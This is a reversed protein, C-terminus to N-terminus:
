FRYEARLFFSRSAQPLRPAFPFDGSRVGPDFYSEDLLNNVLLQLTLGPTLNDLTLAGNVVVHSRVEDFVEGAVTSRLGTARDSVYNTRLNLNLRRISQPDIGAAAEPEWLKANLVANLRSDAIDEVRGEEPLTDKPNTHTFNASLDYRGRSWRVNGQLGSIEREGVSQNQITTGDGFPVGSIQRVANSYEARYAALDVSLNEHPQWNASVEFNRVTEVDLEPNPLDRTGPCIAYRNFNSADKFAESYIAKFVWDNLRSRDETAGETTSLEAPRPAYVLAVRPVFVSGYGEPSFSQRCSGPDNADDCVCNPQSTPDCEGEVVIDGSVSEADNYDFRAGAVLKWRDSFRRTAQFYAGLDLQDVLVPRSNAPQAVLDAFHLPDLGETDSEITLLYDGQITSDRYELGAVVNFDASQRWNLKFENRMQKSSQAFTTRVWFAPTGNALDFLGLRLGTNGLAEAPVSGPLGSSFSRLQTNQSEPDLEHKLYQSFLQFSTRASIDRGYKLYLYTHEPIWRNGTQSDSRATDVYWANGGEERRWKQFGVVLDQLRLKGSISYDETENTYRIRNGDIVQDFVAKDRRRAEAIGNETLVLDNGVVALLGSALQDATVNGAQGIGSANLRDEYDVTDYFGTDFDWDDLGSRDWEDSDYTRATLSYSIKDGRRGAITTDFYRTAWSGGGARVTAAFDKTGEPTDLLQDPSKTIINIVGAFANPGYMTSSPGYVIEVKDINSLPYQRSLYVANSWLDSEEVGDVLFLTRDNGPSRYGRQYFNAYRAGTGRSIDFGPLDHLLAELDLYGRREIEESTVVLVTAPAERLSEVTKSVSSIVAVGSRQLRSVLQLLQPPDGPREQFDPDLILLRRVEAEAKDFEDEVLYVKALLRRAERAM